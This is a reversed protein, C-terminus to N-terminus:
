RVVLPWLTQDRDFGFVPDFPVRLANLQGYAVDLAPHGDRTTAGPPLLPLDIFCRVNPAHKAVRTAFRALLQEPAENPLIPPLEVLPKFGPRLSASTYALAKIDNLKGKIIPCYNYTHRM